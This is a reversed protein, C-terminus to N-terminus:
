PSAAPNVAIGFATALGPENYSKVFRGGPYTYEIRGYAVDSHVIWLDRNGQTMAFTEMEIGASLKTTAIPTGLSGGSPPAYTFIEPSFTAYNQALILINGNVVQMGAIGSITNGTTLTTISTAACGGSIEGVLPNGNHDFGDIFLNGSADFAGFYMNHWNPDTVTACASTSGKAYLFVNGPGSPFSSSMVGVLGATSVAVDTPSQGSLNLTATIAKYPQAYVLINSGGTNAVYLNGASDTTIGFPYNIGKRLRTQLRGEADFVSVVNNFSDSVIVQDATKGPRAGPNAAQASAGLLTLVPRPATAAPSQSGGAFCVALFAVAAVGRLRSAVHSSTRM